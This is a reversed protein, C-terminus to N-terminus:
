DHYNYVKGDLTSCLLQSKRPNFMACVPSDNFAGYKLVPENNMRADYVYTFRDESCASVYISDASLSVKTPLYRNLHADFRRVCKASRLDWVKVGDCVGNTLFLDYSVRNFESQNQYIQNFPRMHADHITLSSKCENLDFVEISKNTGGCLVVYSFFSNIVSMCAISQAFTMEFRRVLKCSSDNAYTQIDCKSTDIYYKCLLLQKETGILLFKDLYFFNAASIPKKFQMDASKVDLMLKHAGKLSWIKCTRDDGASVLWRGDHSVDVSRIVDTHSSFAAVTKDLNSASVYQVVNDSSSLAFHAGDNTFKIEVAPSNKDTPSHKGKLKSPLVFEFETPEAKKKSKSASPKTFTVDSLSATSKSKNISPLFRERKPVPANYGSSKIRSAFTLPKNLSDRRGNASGNTKLYEHM